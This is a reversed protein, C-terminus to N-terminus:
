DTLVDNHFGLFQNCWLWALPQHSRERVKRSLNENREDTRKLQGELITCEEMLRHNAQSLRALDTQQAQLSQNADHLSTETERHARESSSLQSQLDRLREREEGEVAQVNTADYLRVFPLTHM